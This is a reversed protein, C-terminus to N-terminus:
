LGAVAILAQSQGMVPGPAGAATHFSLQGLHHSQHLVSPSGCPRSASSWPSRAQGLPSGVRLDLSVRCHLADATAHGLTPRARGLWMTRDGRAVSRSRRCSCSRAVQGLRLRFSGDWTRTPRPSPTVTARNSTAAVSGHLRFPQPRLTLELTRVPKGV